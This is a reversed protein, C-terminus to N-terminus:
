CCYLFLIVAMTMYCGFFTYLPESMM